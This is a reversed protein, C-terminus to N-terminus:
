GEGGEQALGRVFDSAVKRDYEMTVEFTAGDMGHRDTGARYLEIIFDGVMDAVAYRDSTDIDSFLEVGITSCLRNLYSVSAIAAEHHNRRQNDIEQVKGRFDEPDLRLRWMPVMIQERIVINAYDAFSLLSREVMEVDDIFDEPSNMDVVKLKSIIDKIKQIFFKM